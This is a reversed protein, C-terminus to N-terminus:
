APAPSRALEAFRDGPLVELLRVDNHGDTFASEPVMVSFNMKTSGMDRFSRGVAAIRGNVAVALNRDAPFDSDIWGFVQAPIRPGDLNVRAFRAPEGFVAAAPRSRTVDLDALSRGILEPNPEVRFLREVDAGVGFRRAREAVRAARRAVLSRTAIRMRGRKNTLVQLERPRERRESLDRGILGLPRAVNAANLITPLIDVTRVWSDDIAGATQEPRKVFLPVFAVDHANAQTLDRRWSIDGRRYPEAPSGKVRFSMGHDATVVVLAKDYLGAARLRAMLKRLLVDTYMLQLLHRQEAQRTLFENDFSENGDLGPEYDAKGAYARGSPLYRLPEHPLLLHLFWLGPRDDDPAARGVRAVTRDFRAERDSQLLHLLRRRPAKCLSLPCIQTGEEDAEIRYQERLLTFLNVPHDAAVPRRKNSPWRGDLMAPISKITSDHVTTANRYWTSGRALEAFGPFREADIGGGPEMLMSTPLADFVVFVVPPREGGDRNALAISAAGLAALVLIAVVGRM